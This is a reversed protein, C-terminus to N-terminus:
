QKLDALPVQPDALGALDVAKGALGARVLTQIQEQVDWINVNM